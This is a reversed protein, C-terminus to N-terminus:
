AYVGLTDNTLHLAGAAHGMIIVKGSRPTDVLVAGRRQLKQHAEEVTICEFQEMSREKM